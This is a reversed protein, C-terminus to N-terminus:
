LMKKNLPNHRTKTKPNHCKKNQSVETCRGEEKGEEKGENFVKWVPSSAMEEDLIIPSGGARGRHDQHFAGESSTKCVPSSAMEEDLVIPSGGARGRHDQQFHEDEAGREEAEELDEFMWDDEFSLSSSSLSSSPARRLWWPLSQRLRHRISVNSHPSRRRAARQSM